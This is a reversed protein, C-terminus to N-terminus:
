WVSPSLGIRSWDKSTRPEGIIGEALREFLEALGRRPWRGARCECACGDIAHIIQPATQRQSIVCFDRVQSGAM